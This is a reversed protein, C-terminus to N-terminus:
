INSALIKKFKYKGGARGFTPTAGGSGSQKNLLSKKKEYKFLNNYLKM